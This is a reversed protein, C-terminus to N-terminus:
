CVFYTHMGNRNLLEKATLIRDHSAVTLQTPTHIGLKRLPQLINPITDDTTLHLLDDHAADSIAFM